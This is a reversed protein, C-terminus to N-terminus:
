LDTACIGHVAGTIMKTQYTANYYRDIIEYCNARVQEHPTDRELWEKIIRALDRSDGYRFLAGTVGPKIAEWEPMQLDPNDHTIVPIGYALAHM